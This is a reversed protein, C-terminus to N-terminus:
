GRARGIAIQCGVERRAPVSHHAHLPLLRTGGLLMLGPPPLGLSRAVEAPLLLELAVSFYWTRAADSAAQRACPLGSGPRGSTRPIYPSIDALSGVGLSM